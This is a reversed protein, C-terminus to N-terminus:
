DPIISYNKYSIMYNSHEHNKPTSQVVGCLLSHFSREVIHGVTRDEIVLLLCSHDLVTSLILTSTILGTRAALEKFYTHFTGNQPMHYM